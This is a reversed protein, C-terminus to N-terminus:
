GTSCRAARAQCRHGQRGAGGAAWGYGCQPQGGPIKPFPPEAQGLPWSPAPPPEDQPHQAKGPAVLTPAPALQVVLYAFYSPTSPGPSSPWLVLAGSTTCTVQIPPGPPLLRSNCGPIEEAPHWPWAELAGGGAQGSSGERPSFQWQRSERSTPPPATLANQQGPLLSTVEQTHPYKASGLNKWPGGEHLLPFNQTRLYSERM